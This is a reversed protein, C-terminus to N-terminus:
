TGATPRGTADRGPTEQTRACSEAADPTRRYSSRRSCATAGGTAIRQPGHRLRRGRRQLACREVCGVELRAGLKHWEGPPLHGDLVHPDTLLVEGHAVSNTDEVDRMHALHHDTSWLCELAHLPQDGAVDAADRLPAGLVAQEAVLAAAHEVVEEDVPQALRSKQDHGVGRVM